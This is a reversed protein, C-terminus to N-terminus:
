HYSKQVTPTKSYHSPVLMAEYWCDSPLINVLFLKNHFSVSGSGTVNASFSLYYRNQGLLESCASVRTKEATIHIHRLHTLHAPNQTATKQLGSLVFLYVNSTRSSSSSSNQLHTDTIQGDHWATVSSNGILNIKKKRRTKKSSTNHQRHIELSVVTDALQIHTGTLTHNDPTELAM